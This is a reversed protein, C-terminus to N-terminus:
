STSSGVLCPALVVRRFFVTRDPGSRDRRWAFLVVARSTAGEEGSTPQFFQTWHLVSRLGEFPTNKTTRTQRSATDWAGASEDRIQRVFIVRQYGNTPSTVWRTHAEIRNPAGTVAGCSIMDAQWRFEGSTGTWGPFPHASAGGVAGISVVLACVAVAVVRTKGRAV